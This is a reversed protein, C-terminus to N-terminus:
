PKGTEQQEDDPYVPTCKGHWDCEVNCALEEDHPKREECDIMCIDAKDCIMIRKM